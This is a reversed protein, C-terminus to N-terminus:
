RNDDPAHVKGRWIWGVIDILAFRRVKGGTHVVLKDHQRRPPQTDIPLDYLRRNTDRLRVTNDNAKSM